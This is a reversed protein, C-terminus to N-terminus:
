ESGGLESLEATVSTAPSSLSATLSNIADLRQRPKLGTGAGAQGM